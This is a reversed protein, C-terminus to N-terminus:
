EALVLVANLPTLPQAPQPFLFDVEDDAPMGYGFSHTEAEKLGHPATHFDVQMQHQVEVITAYSISEGELQESVVRYYRGYQHHLTNNLIALRFV